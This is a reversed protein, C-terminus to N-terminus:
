KSFGGFNSNFKDVTQPNQKTINVNPNTTRESKDEPAPKDQEKPLEAEAVPAEKSTTGHLVDKYISLMYPNDAFTKDVDSILGSRLILEPNNILAIRILRKITEQKSGEMNYLYNAIDIDGQNFRLYVPKLDANRTTLHDDGKDMDYELLKKPDNIIDANENIATRLLQKVLYSRKFPIVNPAKKLFCNVDKGTPRFLIQSDM